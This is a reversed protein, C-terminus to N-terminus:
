VYRLVSSIHIELLKTCCCLNTVGGNLIYNVFFHSSRIHSFGPLYISQDSFRSQTHMSLHDDFFDHTYLTNSGLYLEFEGRIYKRLFARYTPLKQVLSASENNVRKTIYPLVLIRSVWQTYGANIFSSLLLLCGVLTAWPHGQEHSFGSMKM